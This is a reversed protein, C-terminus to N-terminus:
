EVETKGKKLLYLEKILGAFPAAVVIGVPGAISGGLTIAAISWFMKLNLKDGLIRPELFWADFQQLGLLYLFVFVAKKPFVFLSIISSLLMGLFPGIYPIFNTFTIFLWLFIAYPVKFILLGAFAILGIILSDVTKGHLYSLFVDNLKDGLFIIKDAKEKPLFVRTVEIILKSFYEKQGLFFISMIFGMAFEVVSFTVSVLNEAIVKLARQAFTLSYENIKDLQEKVPASDLYPVKSFYKDIFKDAFAEFKTIYSPFNNILDTINTILKPVILLIFIILLLILGIYILFISKGRSLKIKKELFDLLPNLFFAIIGGIIFVSFYGIVKEFFAFFTDSNNIMSFALVVLIAIIFINWNKKEIKM